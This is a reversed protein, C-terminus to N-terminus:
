FYMFPTCAGCAGVTECRFTYREEQGTITQDAPLVYESCKTEVYRHFVDALLAEPSLQPPKATSKYWEIFQAENVYNM